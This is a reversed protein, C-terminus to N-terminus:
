VTAAAVAGRRGYLRILAILCAFVMSFLSGATAAEFIDAIIFTRGGREVTGGVATAFMIPFQLAVGLWVLCPLLWFNRRAAISSSRFRGEVLAFAQFFVWGTFLWGLYNVLPVGFQGSPYRYAYMNLVASGIPDYPYDFGALIFSAVVPTTFRYIGGADGPVDRVILKALTWGFWGLVVYGIVVPIPVGLPKPGAQHHTYFGFPFGTAISCAECAFAVTGAILVYAGFGKWGYSLKGHMIVIIMLLLGQAGGLAAASPTGTRLASLLFVPLWLGALAWCTMMQGAGDDAKNEGDEGM